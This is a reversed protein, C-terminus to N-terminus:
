LGETHLLYGKLGDRMSYIEMVTKEGTFNYKESDAILNNYM